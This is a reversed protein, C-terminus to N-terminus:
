LDRGLQPVAEAHHDFGGAHLLREVVRRPQRGITPPQDDGAVVGVPWARDIHLAPVPFADVHDVGVLSVRGDVHSRQAVREPDHLGAPERELPELRM